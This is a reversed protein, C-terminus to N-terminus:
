SLRRLKSEVFLYALGSPVRVLIKLLSIPIIKLNLTWEFSFTMVM